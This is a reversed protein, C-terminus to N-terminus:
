DTRSGNGTTSAAGFSVIRQRLSAHEAFQACCQSPACISVAVVTEAAPVANLLLQACLDLGDRGGNLFRQVAASRCRCRHRQADAHGQRLARWRAAPLLLQQGARGAGRSHQPKGGKKLPRRKAGTNPESQTVSRSLTYHLGHQAISLFKVGSAAAHPGQHRRGATVAAAAPVLTAGAARGAAARCCVAGAIAAQGHAAVAPATSGGHIAPLGSRSIGAQPVRPCGCWSALRCRHSAPVAALWFTRRASRRHRSACPRWVLPVAPLASLVAAQAIMRALIRGVLPCCWGEPRWPSGAMADPEKPAPCRTGASHEGGPNCWEQEAGTWALAPAPNVCVKIDNPDGVASESRRRPRSGNIECDQQLRRWGPDGDEKGWM